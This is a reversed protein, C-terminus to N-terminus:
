LMFARPISVRFESGVGVVSKVSATGGHALAIHRVISLGLGTGGLDRSRGADVRYFREFIRPLYAEAIGPGNDSVAIDLSEGDDSGAGSVSAEVRVESGEPSYRIANQVLNTVAQEMLGQNMPFVLDDPCSYEVKTRKARAFGDCLSKVGGMLDTVLTPERKIAQGEGQELRSVTLLDEIIAGLRSSQQDLIELFRRSDVPDDIAGERLTEIFGRISTVPTKLEHSVNAVFDKRIRELNKLRTIDSFVLLREPSGEIPTSKALLYKAPASPNARFELTLETEGETPRKAFDAIEANRIAQILPMGAYQQGGLGFLSEAAPNARIIAGNGSLVILADNMSALIADTERNKEDLASIKDDIRGAMESFTDALSTLELPWSAEGSAPATMGDAYGRARAGLIDLPGSIRSAVLVALALALVLIAAAACLIVAFLRQSAVNVYHVSLALRLVDGRYPVALYLMTKGLSSSRRVSITQRGNRAGIFEPRDAHNEMRATDTNSDALVTGDYAIYTIRFDPDAGVTSCFERLAEGRALEPRADLLTAIGRAFQSLNAETQRYAANRLAYGSVATFAAVTVLIIAASSTFLYVWTRRKGRGTM